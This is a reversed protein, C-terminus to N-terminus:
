FPWGKKRRSALRCVPGGIAVQQHLHRENAIQRMHAAANRSSSTVENSQGTLSIKVRRDRDYAFLEEVPIRLRDVIPSSDIGIQPVNSLNIGGISELKTRVRLDKEQLQSGSAELPRRRCPGGAYASALRDSSGGAISMRDCSSDNGPPPPQPPPPRVSEARRAFPGVRDNFQIQTHEDHDAELHSITRKKSVLFDRERDSGDHLSTQKASSLRARYAIPDDDVRTEASAWVSDSVGSPLRNTSSNGAAAGGGGGINARREKKLLRNNNKDNEAFQIMESVDGTVTARTFLESIVKYREVERCKEDYREEKLLLEQQLAQCKETLDNVLKEMRDLSIKRELSLEAQENAFEEIVQLTERIWASLQHIASTITVKGDKLAGALDNTTLGSSNDPPRSM